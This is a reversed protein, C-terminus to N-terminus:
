RVSWISQKSMLLLWQQKLAAVAEGDPLASVFSASDEVVLGLRLLFGMIEQMPMEVQEKFNNYLYRECLNALKKVSLAQGELLLVTYVLIAGKFIQDESADLLFHVVGFGSALTKEYLTKNVLLQYRDATQKYGLTVRTVYLLLSVSAIVDLAFASPSSLLDDFKHSVLFAVLGALSALDLRVTDLLRFSLKKNPFVVKLDPVPIKTYTHLQLGPMDDNGQESKSQNYLLVLEEYAPEQLTTRSFFVSFAARIQKWPNNGCAAKSAPRWIDRMSVRALMKPRMYPEVTPQDLHYLLDPIRPSAPPLIGMRVLIRRLLLGRSGASSLVAEYRPVAQRAAKWIELGESDSSSTEDSDNSPKFNTARQLPEELWREIRNTLARGEEDEELSEWKKICWRGARFLPGPAFFLSLITLTTM